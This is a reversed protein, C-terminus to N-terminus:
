RCSSDGTLKRNQTTRLSVSDHRNSLQRSTAFGGQLALHSVANDGSDWIESPVNLALSPSSSASQGQLAWDSTERFSATMESFLALLPRLPGSAELM